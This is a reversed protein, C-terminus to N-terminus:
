RGFFSKVKESFTRQSALAQEAEFGKRIEFIKQLTDHAVGLKSQAILADATRNLNKDPHNQLSAQRFAKKLAGEDYNGKLGLIYEAHAPCTPKLEDKIICDMTVNNPCPDVDPCPEVENIVNVFQRGTALGNVTHIIACGFPRFSELFRNKWCTSLGRITEKGVAYTKWAGRILNIGRHFWKAGPVYSSLFDFACVGLSLKWSKLSNLAIIFPIANGMEAIHHVFPIGPVYYALWPIVIGAFLMAQHKTIALPDKETSRSKSLYFMVDLPSLLEGEKVPSDGAAILNHAAQLSEERMAYYLPRMGERDVSNFDFKKTDLLIQVVEGNGGIAALHLLSKRDPTLLDLRCGLDILFRVVEPKGHLTAYHLATLGFSDNAELQALSLKKLTEIDGLAAAKHSDLSSTYTRLTDLHSSWAKIIEEVESPLTKNQAEDLSTGIKHGLVLATLKPDNRLVAHDTPLLGQHDKLHPSFLGSELFDKVIEFSGTRIAYHLPMEGNPLPRNALESQKLILIADAPSDKTIARQLAKGMEPEVPLSRVPIEKISSVVAAM